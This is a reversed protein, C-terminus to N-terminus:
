PTVIVDDSLVSSEGMTNRAAPRVSCAELAGRSSASHAPYGATNSFISQVLFRTILEYGPDYGPNYLTRLYKSDVIALV